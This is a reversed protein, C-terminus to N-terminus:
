ESAYLGSAVSLYISSVQDNLASRDWRCLEQGAREQIVESTARESNSQERYAQNAIARCVAAYIIGRRPGRM